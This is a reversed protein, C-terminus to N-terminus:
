PSIEKRHPTPEDLRPPEDGRITGWWVRPCRTLSPKGSTSDKVRQCGDPIGGAPPTEGEKGRAPAPRRLPWGAARCQRQGHATSSAPLGPRGFSRSVPRFNACGACAPYHLRARGACHGPAASRRCIECGPAGPARAPTPRVASLGGVRQRQRRPGRTGGAPPTDRQRVCRRGWPPGIAYLRLTIRPSTVRIVDTIRYRATYGGSVACYAGKRQAQRHLHRGM